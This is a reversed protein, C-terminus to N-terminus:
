LDYATQQDRVYLTTHSLKTIMVQEKDYTAGLM